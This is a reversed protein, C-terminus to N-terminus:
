KHTIRILEKEVDLLRANELTFNIVLEEIAEFQRHTSEKIEESLVVPVQHNDSGGRCM